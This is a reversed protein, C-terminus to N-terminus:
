RPDESSESSRPLRVVIEGPGPGTSLEAGQAAMAAQVQPPVQWLGAVGAGERPRALLELRVTGAPEATATWQISGGGPIVAPAELLLGVFAQLCLARDVAAVPGGSPTDEAATVEVDVNRLTPGSLRAARQLEAEIDVDEVTGPTARAFEWIEQTLNRARTAAKEVLDLYEAIRASEKSGISDTTTGDVVGKALETFALVIGIPGNLDHALGAAIRGVLANREREFDVGNDRGQNPEM